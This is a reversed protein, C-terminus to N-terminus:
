RTPRSKAGSKLLLANRHPGHRSSADFRVVQDDSAAGRPHREGVRQYIRRPGVDDHDVPPVRGAPVPELRIRKHAQVLGGRVVAHVRQREAALRYVAVSRVCPHVLAGAGRLYAPVVVADHLLAQQRRPLDAVKRHRAVDALM